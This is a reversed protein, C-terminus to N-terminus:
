IQSMRQLVICLDNYSFVWAILPFVGRSFGTLEYEYKKLVKRDNYNKDHKEKEINKRKIKKEKLIEKNEKTKWFLEWLAPLPGNEWKKTM